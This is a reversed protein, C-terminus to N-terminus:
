WLRLLHLLLAISLLLPSPICHTRTTSYFFRHTLIHIHIHVRAIRNLSDTSSGQSCIHGAGV